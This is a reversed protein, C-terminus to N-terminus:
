VLLLVEGVHGPHTACSPYPIHQLKSGHMTTLPRHKPNYERSIADHKRRAAETFTLQKSQALMLAERAKQRELVVDIGQFIKDKVDRARERAQSLSVDPYGGLGIYRRKKGIVTRLIWSRSKDTTVQLCLGAVGGVAYFGPEIFRSVEIASLPEIKRPM